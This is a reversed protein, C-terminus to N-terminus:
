KEETSVTQNALMMLTPDVESTPSTLRSGLSVAQAGLVAVAIKIAKM